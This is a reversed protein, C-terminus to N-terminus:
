LADCSVQAHQKFSFRLDDKCQGILRIPGGSTSFNKCVNTCATARISKYDVGSYVQRIILTIQLYVTLSCSYKLKFDKEFCVIYLVM